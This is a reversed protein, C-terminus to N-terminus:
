RLGDLLRGLTLFYGSALLREELLAVEVPPLGESLRAFEEDALRNAEELRRTRDLWEDELRKMDLHCYEAVVCPGDEPYSGHICRFRNYQSDEEARPAVRSRLESPRKKWGVPENQTDPDWVHVAAGLELPGNFCWAWEYVLPNNKPCLVLRHNFMMPLMDYWYEDDEAVTFSERDNRIPQEYVKLTM